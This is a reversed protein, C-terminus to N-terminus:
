PEPVESQEIIRVTTTLPSALASPAQLTCRVAVLHHAPEDATRTTVRGFIYHLLVNKSSNWSSETGSLMGFPSEDPLAGNQFQVDCSDADKQWQLVLCASASPGLVVTQTIPIEKWAFTSSLTSELLVAEGAVVPSPMDGLAPRIQVRTEGHSAGKIRGKIFVRTVRWSVTDNPLNPKFYQARWHGSSVTNNNLSNTTDHSSFITEAGETLEFTGATSKTDYQLRFHHVSPALILPEGGNIRRMFASGTEGSWWYRITEPQGDGTRDPVTFEVCRETMVSFSRAYRLDGVLEDMVSACQATAEAVSSGTPVAKAAVMISSQAALMVMSLIVLSLIMELLTFAKRRTSGLQIHRRIM